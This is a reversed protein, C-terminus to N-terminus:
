EGAVALLESMMMATAGWLIRGHVNFYPVGRLTTGPAVQLDITQLTRADFFHPFPVEIVDSVESLQPRFTPAYDLYGVYPNVLFNSVPIYLETLQGLLEIHGGRIGVEEETERRATQSLDHDQDEYKGGPFSIQGAHRDRQDSSSREIFVMHWERAKPYFLALVAALRADAPPPPTDQRVAHAMRYQANRGPLPGRLRKELRELFQVKKLDNTAAMGSTKKM